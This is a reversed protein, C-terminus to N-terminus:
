ALVKQITTIVRNIDKETMRPYLPLSVIGSFVKETAPLDGEKYGFGRYFSQLHNPIFHVSTGIGEESLREIFHDRSFGRIRISYLHYSHRINHARPPLVIRPLDCLGIDYLQACKERMEIFGHLKKLQHIGLSAQLDFMSYKWGSHTIDYRWSAGKEYRKWSDKSMGHSRNIKVFESIGEDDTTLMGGEGTSLNKTAYFSFCTTNGSSGIKKGNYESGVAHAADEILVLRYKKALYSLVDMDAPHGAYHVVIIAKTRPTIKREVDDVDITYSHGDIDAFVPRAGVNVIMNVSSAFTFSPVIVEDNVGIRHALLALHLAATCSTLGIAYKVGIYKAFEKEFELTKPGTSLWGGELTHIIEHAEEEGLTPMSFPIFDDSPSQASFIRASPTDVSTGVIKKLLEYDEPTDLTLRMSSVGSSLTTASVERQRFLENHQLIYTTIHERDYPSSAERCAKALAEYTFVESGLGGPLGGRHNGVFDLHENQLVGILRKMEELDTLPNDATVRVITKSGFKTATEFYRGLCDEESGRFYLYGRKECVSVIQDDKVNTTTAVIVKGLLHAKKLRDVLYELVTTGAFPLLVKGPLRTSWMRAQVIVDINEAVSALTSGQTNGKTEM